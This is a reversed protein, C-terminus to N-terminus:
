SLSAPIRHKVSAEFFRITHGGYEEQTLFRLSNSVRCVFLEIIVGDTKPDRKVHLGKVDPHNLVLMNSGFEIIMNSLLNEQSSILERRGWYQKISRAM